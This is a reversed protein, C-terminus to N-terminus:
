KEVTGAPPMMGAQSSPLHPDAAPSVTFRSFRLPDMLGPETGKGLLLPPPTSPPGPSTLRPKSLATETMAPLFSANQAMLPFDDEWEFSGSFGDSSPFVQIGLDASTGPGMQENETASQTGLENTPTEQDFLYVTVDDFFSVMKRKRDLEDGVEDASRPSKLLSRLHRGDDAETMVVIPVGGSEEEGPERLGPGDDEEEQSFHFDRQQRKSAEEEMDDWFVKRGVPSPFTQLALPPLSLSLRAAKAKINESGQNGSASFDLFLKPQEQLREAVPFPAGAEQGRLSSNGIPESCDRMHSESCAGRDSLVEQREEEILQREGGAEEMSESSGESEHCPPADMCDNSSDNTHRLGAMNSTEVTDTISADKQSPGGSAPTESPAPPWFMLVAQDKICNPSGGAGLPDRSTLLNRTINERLSVVLEEKCVQVLFGGETQQSAAKEFSPNQDFIAAVACVSSQSENNIGDQGRTSVEELTMSDEGPIEDEQSWAGDIDVPERSERTSQSEQNVDVRTILEDKDKNRSTVDETYGTHEEMLERSEGATQNEQNIVVRTILESKDKSAIEETDETHEETLERSERTTQNEQNVEARTVLEDKEKNSSPGEESDGVHEEATDESKHHCDEIQEPHVVVLTAELQKEEERCPSEDNEQRTEQSSESWHKDTENDGDSFYASDRHPTGPVLPRLYGEDAPTTQAESLDETLTLDSTSESIPTLPLKALRAETEDIDKFIFEPSFTNETEYGSDGFKQGPSSYHSAPSWVDSSSANSPIDLSDVSDLTGRQRQYSSEMPRLTGHVMPSGGLVDPLIEITEEELAEALTSLPPIEIPIIASCNSIPKSIGVFPSPPHQGINQNLMELAVPQSRKSYHQIDYSKVAAGMLPDYFEQHGLSGFGNGFTAPITDGEGFSRIQVSCESLSGQEVRLSSNDDLRYSEQRMAAHHTWDMVVDGRLMACTCRQLGGRNCLPCSLFNRHGSRDTGTSGGSSSSSETSRDEMLSPECDWPSARDDLFEVLSSPDGALTEGAGREELTDSDWSRQQDEIDQYVNLLSGGSFVDGMLSTEQVQRPLDREAPTRFPNAYRPLDRAITIFPNTGSPNWVPKLPPADQLILHTEPSERDSELTDWNSPFLPELPSNSGGLSLRRHCGRLPEKIDYQHEFVPSPACVTCDVSTGRDTHEELRIYYESSVSPSRASIVPVVSPTELNQHCHHHGTDYFPNAPVTLGGNSTSYELSQNAVKWRGQRAKEWMYEFNLGRSSETVTLIDDVDSHFGDGGAFSDLLPFASIEDTHRLSGAPVRTPKLTNWRWEFSEEAQDSTESLLYTLQLHLEEATPRQELPLWCSQMVEYWYDSHPLKLRPKALKMQQEKIVFTLVEEDSLHRYPQSGFEFLEWITVGLSWINSEKSQDVVVLNGHVEDVLEPAVWRLPIWLRDPTIYYDEKYNNHSIGYDGIRVTLDSTLLCNRLALDSHIYDNNHLHLLGFTIEYAMRQLTTLDRTLLDPTMSDAKRQARLYRKLDGLQCFEMILLFPVTETCLGLCQLINPHQLSRYPQAESLFKRQELPSANVRLEKVVVQAPTFDSFVEGLIVKGFWGTGIEQLYSLDQRSFGPQKVLDTKPLQPNAVPLSVESLPLIYVDPVSQSSSSEEAPPTYEGSYDDGDANEFEKFGVDGRKCCLCTLLLFVFALLGSCSILVVAYPPALPLRGQSTGDNEAPAALAKEPSFYSMHVLLLSLLSGPRLM